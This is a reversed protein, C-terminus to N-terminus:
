SQKLAVLQKRQFIGSKQQVIKQFIDTNLSELIEM